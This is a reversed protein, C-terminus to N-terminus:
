DSFNILDEELTILLQDGKQEWLKQRDYFPSEIRPNKYGFGEKYSEHALLDKLIPVKSAIENLSLSTIPENLDLLLDKLLDARFGALEKRAEDCRNSWSERLQEIPTYGLYNDYIKENKTIILSRKNEEFDFGNHALVQRLHSRREKKRAFHRSKETVSSLFENLTRCDRCICAVKPRAWDKFSEPETGVFRVVYSGLIHQFLIQFPTDQFPTSEKQLRLIVKKLFPLFFSGYLGLEVGLAESNLKQVLSDLESDCEQAKFQCLFSTSQAFIQAEREHEQREDPHM